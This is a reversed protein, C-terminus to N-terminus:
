ITELYKKTANLIFFLSRLNYFDKKVQKANQFQNLKEMYTRM